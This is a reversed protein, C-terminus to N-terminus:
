TFLADIDVEGEPTMPVPDALMALIRRVREIREPPVGADRVFEEVTRRSKQANCPRCAPVINGPLNVGGHNMSVFHDLDLLCKTAGCYACANSFAALADDWDHVGFKSARGLMKARFHNNNCATRLRYRVPDLEKSRAASAISRANNAARVGTPDEALLRKRYAMANAHARQRREESAKTRAWDQKNKAAHWEPSKSNM